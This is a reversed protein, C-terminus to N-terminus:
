RSVCPGGNKTASVTLASRSSSTSAVTAVVVTVEFEDNWFCPLRRVSQDSGAHAVYHAAPQRLQGVLRVTHQRRSGYEVVVEIESRQTVNGIKLRYIGQRREIRYLCAPQKLLRLFRVDLADMQVSECVILNTVNGVSLHTVSTSLHEM